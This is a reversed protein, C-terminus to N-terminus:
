DVLRGTVRITFRKGRAEPQIHWVAATYTNASAAKPVQTGQGCVFSRPYAVHPYVNLQRHLAKGFAWKPSQINVSYRGMGNLGLVQSPKGRRNTPNFSPSALLHDVKARAGALVFIAECSYHYAALELRVCDWIVDRISIGPRAWKTEVALTVKENERIIFDLQPSRGDAGDISLVPHNHEAIVTGATNKSLLQAMPLALYRESFLGDRGCHYEFALWSALGESISRRLALRTDM